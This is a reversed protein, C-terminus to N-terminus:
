KKTESELLGLSIKLEFAFAPCTVSVEQSVCGKLFSIADPSNDISTGMYGNSLIIDRLGATMGMVLVQRPQAPKGLYETYAALEKTDPSSPSYGFRNSDGQTRFRFTNTTWNSM